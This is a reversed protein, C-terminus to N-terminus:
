SSIASTLPQFNNHSTGEKFSWIFYKLLRLKPKYFQERGWLVFVNPVSQHKRENVNPSHAAIGNKFHLGSLRNRLMLKAHCSVISYVGNRQFPNKLSSVPVCSPEAGRQMPRGVPAHPLAVATGAYSPRVLVYKPYMKSEQCVFFQKRTHIICAFLKRQNAQSHPTKLVVSINPFSIQLFATTSKKRERLLNPNSYFHNSLM